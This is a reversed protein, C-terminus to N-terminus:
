STFDLFNYFKVDLRWFLKTKFMKIKNLILMKERYILFVKILKQEVKNYVIKLVFNIIM